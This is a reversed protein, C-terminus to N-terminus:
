QLTGLYPMVLQETNCSKNQSQWSGLERMLALCDDRRGNEALHQLRAQMDEATIQAAIEARSITSTIETSPRIRGRRRQM